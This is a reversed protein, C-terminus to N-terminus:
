RYIAVRTGGSGASCLQMTIAIFCQPPNADGIRRRDVHRGNRDHDTWPLTEAEQTSLSGALAKAYLAECEVDSLDSTVPTPHGHDTPRKRRPRYLLRTTQPPRHSLRALNRHTRRDTEGLRRIHAAFDPTEPNTVNDPRYTTTVKGNWNSRSIADHHRLEDLPDETTALFEINFRDFLARPRFRNRTSSRTSKIM